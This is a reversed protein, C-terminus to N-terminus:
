KKVFQREGNSNGPSSPEDSTTVKRASSSLSTWCLVPQGKADLPRLSACGAM